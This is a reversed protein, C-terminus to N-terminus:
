FFPPLTFVIGGYLGIGASLPDESEEGSFSDSLITLAPTLPFRFPVPLAVVAVETATPTFPPAVPALVTTPPCLGLRLSAEEMPAPPSVASMVLDDFGETPGLSAEFREAVATIPVNTVLLVLLPVVLNVVEFKTSVTTVWLSLTNPASIDVTPCAFTRTEDAVTGDDLMELVPFELIVPFFRFAPPLRVGVVGSLKDSMAEICAGTGTTLPVAPMGVRAPLTVAITPLTETLEEPPLSLVTSPSELFSFNSVPPIQPILALLEFGMGNDVIVSDTTTVLMFELGNDPLTIVDAEVPETFLATLAPLITTDTGRAAVDIWGGVDDADV